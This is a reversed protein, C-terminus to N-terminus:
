ECMVRIDGMVIMQSSVTKHRRQGYHIYSNSKYNNSTRDDSNKDSREAVSPELGKKIEM